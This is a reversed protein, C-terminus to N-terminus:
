VLLANIAKELTNIAEMCERMRTSTEAEKIEQEFFRKRAMLQFMIIDRERETLDLTIKM